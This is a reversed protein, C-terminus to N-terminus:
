SNFFVRNFRVFKIYLERVSEFDIQVGHKSKEPTLGDVITTLLPDANYFHPLSVILPINNCPRINLTGQPPCGDEDNCYCRITEDKDYDGFNLHFRSTKIGAYSSSHDYTARVDRCLSPVYALLGEDRQLYPPFITGDTGGYQNCEDTEWVDLEDEDNVSVVRGVDRINKKGRLVKLRATNTANIGGFLSFSFTTDNLKKVGSAETELAACVAKAAFEQSSCDIVVGDFLLDMVKVTLFPTKPDHFIESIAKKAIGIMPPRTKKVVIATGQSSVNIIILKYNKNFILSVAIVPNITTIIENGTLGNSLDPRFIFKDNVYFTATDMTEDDELEEKRKWERLINYSITLFNELDNM